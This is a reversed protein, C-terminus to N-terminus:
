CINRGTLLPGEDDVWKKLIEEFKEVKGITGRAFMIKIQGTFRENILVLLMDIIRTLKDM